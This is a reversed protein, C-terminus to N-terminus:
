RKTSNYREWAAFPGLRGFKRKARRTRNISRLAEAASQDALRVGTLIEWQARLLASEEEGARDRVSNALQRM